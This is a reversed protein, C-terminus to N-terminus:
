LWKKVVARDPSATVECTLIHEGPELDCRLIPFTSRPYLVNLNAEVSPVGGMRPIVSPDRLGSFGHPTLVGAYGPASWVYNQAIALSDVDGAAETLMQEGANIAFGGEVTHVRRQNRILHRRRHTIADIVTLWTEVQLWPRPHWRSYLEQGNLEAHEIKQRVFFLEGDESIALTSDASNATGCPVCFGFHTSYAFKSYKAAGHRQGIWYQGSSIAWVHDSSTDRAMVMGAHKLPHVAPRQPPPLEDAQWFPHTEPVALPLFFKMAWYPAGPGNYSEAMILNPYAYGVSLVGDGNFMSQSAWWRIHRLAFGKIAGWPLAEVDAFALAGWFSGQAFRYTLSRGFPLAAGSDAFWYQYDLAFKAARECFVKARAPDNEGELKAYLLGYYHMGFAVYYDRQATPGDSYWGDELYFQEIRNLGKTIFASDYTEGRHKLALNALIGFFVWNNDVVRANNIQTLWRTVNKKAAASLPEWIKKPAMILAFGISAHEVHRQDFDLADGWYEDHNPDTGHTLGEIFDGWHGFSGGGAALAATGWLPRAFGELGMGPVTYNAQAGAPIVRAKGPSAYKRLPEYLDRVARQLDARSRLPNGDFISKAM